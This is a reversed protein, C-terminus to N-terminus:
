DDDICACSRILLFFLCFPHSYLHSFVSPYEPLCWFDGLVELLLDWQKALPLYGSLVLPLHLSVSLSLIKITRVLIKSSMGKSIVERMLRNSLFLSLHYMCHSPSFYCYVGPTACLVGIQIVCLTCCSMSALSLAKLDPSRSAYLFPFPDVCGFLAPPANFVPKTICPLGWPM